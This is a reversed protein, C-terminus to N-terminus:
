HVFPGHLAATSLGSVVFAECKCPKRPSGGRPNSRQGLSVGTHPKEQQAPRQHRQASSHDARQIPSIAAGTCRTDVARRMEARDRDERIMEASTRAGDGSRPKRDPDCRQEISRLTADAEADTMADILDRLRQKYSM